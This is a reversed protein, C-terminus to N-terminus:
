FHPNPIPAPNLGGLWPTEKPKTGGPLIGAGWCDKELGPGGGGNMKLKNEQGVRLRVPDSFISAAFIGRLAALQESFLHKPGLSPSAKELGNTGMEACKQGGGGFAFFAQYRGAARRTGM